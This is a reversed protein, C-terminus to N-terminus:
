LLIVGSAFEEKVELEERLLGNEERDTKSGGLEDRLRKAEADFADVDRKGQQEREKELKKRM